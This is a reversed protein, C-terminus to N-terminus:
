RGTCQLALTDGAVWAAQAGATNFNALTASTTTSAIQKLVFVTSSQTTLDSGSCSWGLSAAHPFNVVGSTATGGTGVTISFAATGDTGFSISPSTGFGSGITPNSADFVVSLGPGIQETGTGLKIGNFAVTDNFTVGSLAVGPDFNLNNTPGLSFLAIDGTNAANRASFNVNNGMRIDGSLAPASGVAISAAKFLNAASFDVNFAGSSGTASLMLTKAPNTGSGLVTQLKACDQTNVGAGDWGQGCIGFLWSSQNAGSTAPTINEADIEGGAQINMRVANNTLFQVNSNTTLGVSNFLGLGAAVQQWRFSTSGFTLTNDVNPTVSGSFTTTGGLSYTSVSAGSALAIAGSGTVSSLTTGAINIGKQQVPPPLETGATVSYSGGLVSNPGVSVSASAQSQTLWNNLVNFTNGQINTNTASTSNTVGFKTQYTGTGDDSCNNGVISTADALAVVVCAPSADGALGVGRFTNGIIQANKVTHGSVGTAQIGGSKTNHLTNGSVVAGVSCESLVLSPSGSKGTGEFTNGIIRQGTCVSSPITNGGASVTGCSGSGFNGDSCDFTNSLISVNSGGTEISEVDVLTNGIHDSDNANINEGNANNNLSNFQFHWRVDNGLEHASFGFLDDFINHDITVDSAGSGGVAGLIVNSQENNVYTFPKNLGVFHVGTIRINSTGDAVVFGNHNNDLVSSDDGTFYIVSKAGEGMVTTGSALTMTSVSATILSKVGAPFLLTKGAAASLAAAWAATDDTGYVSRVGSITTSASAALTVTSASTYGVISTRLVKGSAGAGKVEIVKASGADSSVFAGDSCNLVASGNTMSCNDFNQANGTVFDRVDIQTDSSATIQVERLTFPAPLGGGSTQIDFTGDAVYFSFSGDSNATFPNSLPTSLGDSYLQPTSSTGSSYVTVTCSPYSALVKTTSLIGATTVQQGGQSCQGNYRTVGFASSCLMM